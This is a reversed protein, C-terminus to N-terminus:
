VMNLCSLQSTLDEGNRPTLIYTLRRRRKEMGVEDDIGGAVVTVWVQVLGSGGIEAEGSSTEQLVSEHATAFPVPVTRWQQAIIEGDRVRWM